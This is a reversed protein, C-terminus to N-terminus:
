NYYYNLIFMINYFSTFLIFAVQLFFPYLMSFNQISTVALATGFIVNLFRGSKLLSLDFLDCFKNWLSKKEPIVRIHYGSILIFNNYMQSSIFFWDGFWIVIEIM